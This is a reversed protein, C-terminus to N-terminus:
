TGGSRLMQMGLSILVRCIVHIISVSSFTCAHTHISSSSRHPATSLLGAGGTSRLLTWPSHSSSLPEPLSGTLSPQCRNTPPGSLSKPLYILTHDLKVWSILPWCFGSGIVWVVTPLVFHLDGLGVSWKLNVKSLFVWVLLIRKTLIQEVWAVMSASLSLLLAAIM